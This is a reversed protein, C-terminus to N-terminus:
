IDLDENKNEDADPLKILTQKYILNAIIMGFISIIAWFLGRDIYNTGDLVIIPSGKKKKILM